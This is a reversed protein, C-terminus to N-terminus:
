FLHSCVFLCVVVNVVVSFLNLFPSFLCVCLLLMECVNVVVSISEFNLVHGIHKHRYCDVELCQLGARLVVAVARVALAAQAQAQAQAALTSTPFTAQSCTSSPATPITSAPACHQWWKNALIARKRLVFFGFSSYVSNNCFCLFIEFYM